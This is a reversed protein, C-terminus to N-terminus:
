PILTLNDAAHAHRASAVVLVNHETFTFTLEDEPVDVNFTATAPLEQPNTAAEEIEPAEVVFRRDYMVTQPLQPDTSFPHDNTDDFCYNTVYGTWDEDDAPIGTHGGIHYGLAVHVVPADESALAPQTIAAAPQDTVTQTGGHLSLALELETILEGTDHDYVDRRRRVVGKAALIGSVVRVTHGVTVSPHFPIAFSVSNRRHRELIETRAKAVMTIQAYEWADRGTAEDETAEYGYDDVNLATSGTKIDEYSQLSGEWGSTDRKSQVGYSEDVPLTGYHEISNPAQVTIAYQESVTQTWRRDMRWSAGLCLAQTVPNTLYLGGPLRNNVWAIWGYAGSPYQCYFAGGDPLEQWGIKTTRVWGGAGNAASEVMDKTPLHFPATLWDCFSGAYQFNFSVRRQRLLPWRYEADIRLTNLIDNRDAHQVQLTGDIVRTFEYDATAKAAWPTVRLQRNGDHWMASPITSLCDQAIEFGTAEENFVLSTWRGGITTLVEARPMADLVGQLDSTGALRVIGSQLDVGFSSVVGTFRRARFAEVGAAYCVVDLTLSQSLYDMPDLAGPAPAFVLECVASEGEGIEITGGATLRSTIATGNVTAVLDWTLAAADYGADAAHWVLPLAPTYVQPQLEWKLPLAPTYTPKAWTIPLAPEYPDTQWTIWLTPTYTSMEWEIALSPEYPAVYPTGNYSM